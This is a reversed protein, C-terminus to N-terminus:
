ERDGKKGILYEPHQAKLPDNSEQLDCNYDHLDNMRISGWVEMGRTHCADVILNTARESSGLVPWVPGRQKQGWRGWPPECGNGVCWVYTDVCTDFTPTTRADIFSQEDTINYWPKRPPLRTRLSIRQDTQQYADDNYIVRRKRHKEFLMHEWGQRAAWKVTM